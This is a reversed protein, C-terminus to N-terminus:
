YLGLAKLTMPGAIGDPALGNKQQFETLSRTVEPSFVGDVTGSYFGKKQLAAQLKEVEYGAAGEQLLSKEHKGKQAEVLREKSRKLYAARYQVDREAQEMEQTEMRLAEVKKGIRVDGLGRNKESLSSDLARIHGLAEEKRGQEYMRVYAEHRKEAELLVADATVNKNERAAVVVPDGTVEVQIGYEMSRPTNERTDLYSLLVKGLALAGPTEPEVELRLLVTRGEGSYFDEQGILTELGREEMSYGFVEVKRVCPDRLFRLHVDGAVTTFLVDMEQRFIRAMQEPNEIYYYNGGAHQAVAQMLDEDYDLGLGMTSIRVGQARAQQVIRVIQGRDTVGVNALGDSLLMVRTLVEPDTKGQVEEVGRMMGGTLNTSGRPTLGQIRKKIMDPSEVPFSPWLVSIRDDYEVVALRDTSKLSDVVFAAAKQAYELKGGAAMSGSRDIVLALNLPLRSRSPDEPLEPADFRILVYVPQREGLLVAPRDVEVVPEVPAAMGESASMWLALGLGLAAMLRKKM